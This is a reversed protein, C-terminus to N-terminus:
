PPALVRHLRRPRSLAAGTARPAAPAAGSGLLGHLNAKPGRGARRLRPLEPPIFFVKFSTAVARAVTGEGIPKGELERVVHAVFPARDAPSLAEAANAIQLWQIESVPISM